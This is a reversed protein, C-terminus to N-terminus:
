LLVPRETVIVIYIIVNPDPPASSIPDQHTIIEWSGSYTECISTQSFDSVCQILDSEFSCDTSNTRTYVM